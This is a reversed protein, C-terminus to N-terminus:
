EEEAIALNVAAVAAAGDFMEPHESRLKRLGVSALVLRTMDLVAASAICSGALGTTLYAGRSM